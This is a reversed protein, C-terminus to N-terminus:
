YCFLLMSKTTAAPSGQYEYAGIDTYAPTGTGTNSTSPDDYRANGLYDTSPATDGDGADICPSSSTINYPDDGSGVFSPDSNINGTGTYSGEIDSYTVTVTASSDNVNTGTNDWMICNTLTVVTDTVAKIISDACNNNVMTCNTFVASTTANVVKVVAGESDATNSDFICNIAEFSSTTGVNAVGGDDTSASCNAVLCRTLTVSSSSDIMYIFGGIPATNYNAQCDTLTVTAGDSIFIAGGFVSATNEDTNDNGFICDTFNATTTTRIAVAGGRAGSNNTFECNSFNCTSSGTAIIVGGYSSCVNSDFVCNTFDSSTGNCYGTGWSSSANQLWFGNLESDKYIFLNTSGGGDIVTKDNVFDRGEKTGDTGTLSSSFSGFMDCGDKLTVASAFNFTGEKVWIEESSAAAVAGAITGIANDWSSGDESGSASPACYITM